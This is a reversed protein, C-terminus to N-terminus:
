VARTCLMARPPKKQLIRPVPAVQSPSGRYEMVSRCSYATRMVRRPVAESGKPQSITRVASALSTARDEPVNGVRASASASEARAAADRANSSESGCSQRKNSVPRDRRALRQLSAPRTAAERVRRQLHPRERPKIRTLCSIRHGLSTVQVRRYRRIAFRLWTCGALFSFAPHHERTSRSWGTTALTM